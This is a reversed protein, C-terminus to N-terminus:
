LTGLVSFMVATPRAGNLSDPEFSLKRAIVGSRHALEASNTDMSTQPHELFLTSGERHEITSRLPHMQRADEPLAAREREAQAFLEDLATKLAAQAREFAPTRTDSDPVRHEHRVRNLRYIGAIRVIRRNRWSALDEHGAACKICNRGVHVWCTCLIVM